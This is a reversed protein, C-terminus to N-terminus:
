NIFTHFNITLAVESHVVGKGATMWQCDGGGFRASCGLSDSHDIIGKRVLTITEFGRHPHQPFGQSFMVNCILLLVCFFLSAVPIEEGHYM